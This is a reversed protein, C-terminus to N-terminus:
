RPRAIVKERLVDTRLLPCGLSAALQGGVTTKGTGPLGDVVVIM